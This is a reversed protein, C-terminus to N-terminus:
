ELTIRGLKDKSKRSGYVIISNSSTQTSVMPRIKVDEDLGGEIAKRESTEGKEDIYIVIPVGKAPATLGKIKDEDLNKVPLGVNDKQDNYIICIKGDKEGVLYSFFFNRNVYLFVNAARAYASGITAALDTQSKNIVKAWTIDGENSFDFVYIQNYYMSPEIGMSSEGTILFGGDDKFFLNDISFGYIGANKKTAMKAGLLSVMIENSLPQFKKIEAQHTTGSIKVFMSGNIPLYSQTSTIVQTSYFGFVCLDGKANVEFKINSLYIKGSGSYQIAEKFEKNEIRNKTIVQLESYHYKGMIYETFLSSLVYINGDNDTCFRNINYLTKVNKLMPFELDMKNVENHTVDFVKSFFKKKKESAFEAYVSVAIYNGDESTHFRFDSSTTESAVPIEFIQRPEHVAIGEKNLTTYYLKRLKSKYTSTYVIVEEGQLAFAEMDQPAKDIKELEIKKDIKLSLNESDYRQFYYNKGKSSAVFVNGNREGLIFDPTAITNDLDEGWKLKASQGYLQISVSLVAFLTILKEKLKM